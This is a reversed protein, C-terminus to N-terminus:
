RLYKAAQQSQIGCVKKLFFREVVDYVSIFEDMFFPRPDSLAFGDYHMNSEYFKVFDLISSFRGRNETNVLRQEGRVTSILNQLDANLWRYKVGIKYKFIPDISEGKALLYLLYPFDVGSKIAVNMSGWVRPNIEMLKPTSDRNDIKFEVEAVGHWCLSELLERAFAYLMPVPPISERLVSNGGRVPITRKVGIFCVAKPEGHDFLFAVSINSGPVFEQVIPSPSKEAVKEYTSVLEVSNNVYFPRLFFAQGNEGWAYSRRPKVAVPYRIKKSIKVIDDMDKVQFTKPTPIGIEEALKITRFKDLATLVSDHSPLVVKSPKLQERHESIPLLAPDTVPLIAFYRKAKVHKLLAAFYGKADNVPSPGLFSEPRWRSFRSISRAQEDVMISTKVNRRELSRVILLAARCGGPDIVLVKNGSDNM